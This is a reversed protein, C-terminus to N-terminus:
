CLLFVSNISSNLAEIDTTSTNLSSNSILDIEAFFPCM